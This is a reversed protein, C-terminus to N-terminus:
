TWGPTENSVAALRIIPEVTERETQYHGLKFDTDKTQPM